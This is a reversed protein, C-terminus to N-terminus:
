QSDISNNSIKTLYEYIKRHDEATGNNKIRNAKWSVIQVNGAVYGLNSDIRDFSPSNEQRTEAFWDLELGLIPCTKPWELDSMALDWEWKKQKANQRKRTFCRSFAADLESLGLYTERNFRKQIELVRAEKKVSLQKQKGFEGSSLDPLDRKVVLSIMQKSVGYVDAIERLTLMNKTLLTRLNETENKWKITM